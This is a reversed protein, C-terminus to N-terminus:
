PWTLMSLSEILFINRKHRNASKIQLFPRSVNYFWQKSLLYKYVRTISALHTQCTKWWWRLKKILSHYFAHFEQWAEQVHAATINNCDRQKERRRGFRGRGRMCSPLGYRLASSPSSRVPFYPVTFLRHRQQLGTIDGFITAM